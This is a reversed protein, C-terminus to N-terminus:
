FDEDVGHKGGDRFEEGGGESVECLPFDGDGHRLAADFAFEHRGCVGVCVLLEDLSAGAFFGEEFAHLFGHVQRTVWM